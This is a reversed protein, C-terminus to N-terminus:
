GMRFFINKISHKPFKQKLKQLLKPKDHQNLLSYLTSNKVRVELVGDYFGKVETMSSLEPGIIDPWGAIVLDPREGYLDDVRSLVVPLIETLHHTTIATGDYNKPTRGFKKKVFEGVIM